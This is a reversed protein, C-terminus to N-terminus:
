TQLIAEFLLYGSNGYKGLRSCLTPNTEVVNSGAKVKLRGIAENLFKGLIGSCINRFTGGVEINWVYPNRCARIKSSPHQGLDGSTRPRAAAHDNQWDPFGSGRQYRRLSKRRLERHESSYISLIGRLVFKEETLYEM